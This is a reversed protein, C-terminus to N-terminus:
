LSLLRRNLLALLRSLLLLERVVDRVNALKTLRDAVLAPAGTLPLLRDVRTAPQFGYSVEFPYHKSYENIFCNYYFEVMTLHSVLDLRSEPTYCRLLIQM